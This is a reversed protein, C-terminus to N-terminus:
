FLPLKDEDLSFEVSLYAAVVTLPYVEGESSEIFTFSFFSAVEERLSLWAELLKIEIGVVEAADETTLYSEDEVPSTSSSDRSFERFDM